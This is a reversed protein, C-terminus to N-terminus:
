IYAFYAAALICVTHLCCNTVTLKNLLFSIVLPCIYGHDYKALSQLHSTATMGTAIM